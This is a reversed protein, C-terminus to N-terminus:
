KFIKDLKQFIVYVIKVLPLICKYCIIFFTIFQLEYKSINTYFFKVYNSTPLHLKRTLINSHRLFAFVQIVVAM